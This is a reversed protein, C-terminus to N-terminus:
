LEECMQILVSGATPLKRKAAEAKLKKVITDRQEPTVVFTVQVYDNLDSATRGGKGDGGEGDQMEDDLFTTKDAHVLSQLEAPDYASLALDIDSTELLKLEAAVLAEDIVTDASLRNDALRMARAEDESVRQIVVPVKKQGLSKAAEYRRHGKIIVGKGDIVIPQDWGFKDIISALKEIADPEHKKPNGPYPKISAITRMKWEPQKETPSKKAPESNKPM